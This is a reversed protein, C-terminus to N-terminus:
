PKAVLWPHQRVLFWVVDWNEEEECALHFPTKENSNQVNVDAGNQVLWKALKWRGRKYALHLPTDGDNKQVHRRSWEASAM